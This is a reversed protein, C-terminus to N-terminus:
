PWPSPVHGNPFGPKRKASRTSSVPPRTVSTTESPEQRARRSRACRGPCNLRQYRRASCSSKSARRRGAPQLSGPPPARRPRSPAAPGPPPPRGGRRRRCGSRTGSRRRCRRPRPPAGRGRPAARGRSTGTRPGGRGSPGRASAGRGARSTRTGSGPSTRSRPGTPPSARPPPRTPRELRRRALAGEGRELQRLLHDAEREQGHLGRRAGHDLQRRLLRVVGRAGGPEVGVAEAPRAEDAALALVAELAEVVLRQAEQLHVHVLRAPRDDQAVDADAAAAVGPRLGRAEGARLRLQLPDELGREVREDVRRLLRDHVAHAALALLVAAVPGVEQM